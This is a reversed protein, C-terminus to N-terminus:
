PLVRLNHCARRPNHCFYYESHMIARAERLKAIKTRIEKRITLM